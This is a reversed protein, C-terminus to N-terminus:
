AGEGQNASPFDPSAQPGPQPPAIAASREKTLLDITDGLATTLSKRTQEHNAKETQLANALQECHTLSQILQSRLEDVSQMSEVTALVTELQDSPASPGQLQAMERQLAQLQAQALEADRRRQQAESEYLRRWNAASSFAQDREQRLDVLQRQLTKIEALWQTIDQAM